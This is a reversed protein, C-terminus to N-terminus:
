KIYCTGHVTVWGLILNLITPFVFLLVAYIIRKATKKLLKSLEDKDGSTVAKVSDLITMVLVLIPGLIKMFNFVKQLVYAVTGEENVSGLISTCDAPVYKSNDADSDDKKNNEPNDVEMFVTATPTVTVTVDRYSTTGSVKCKLYINTNETPISVVRVSNDNTINVYSNRQDATSDFHCSDYGIMDVKSDGDTIMKTDKELNNTGSEVDDRSIAAMAEVKVTVCERENDTGAKVCSFKNDKNVYKDSNTVYFAVGDKGNIKKYVAKAYIDGASVTGIRECSTYGEVFQATSCSGTTCKSFVIEKKSSCSTSSTCVSGSPTGGNLKSTDFVTADEFVKAEIEVTSGDKNSTCILRQGVSNKFIYPPKPNPVKKVYLTVGGSNRYIGLTGKNEDKYCCNSYSDFYQQDQITYKDIAKVSNLCFLYCFIITLAYLVSKKKM